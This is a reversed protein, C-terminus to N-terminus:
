LKRSWKVLMYSDTAITYTGGTTTIDLKVTDGALMPIEARVPLSFAGSYTLRNSGYLTGGKNFSATANTSVSVSLLKVLGKFTYIGDYDAQFSNGNANSRLDENIVGNGSFNVTSTGSQGSQESTTITDLYSGYLEDRAILDSGSVQIWPRSGSNNIFAGKINNDKFTVGDAAIRAALYAVSGTSHLTNGTVVANKYAINLM